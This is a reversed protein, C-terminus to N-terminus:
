DVKFRSVERILASIGDRNKGSIGNVRNVAVNIQDAGSAMENMGSSIEQSAKELNDSEEIVEKSGDLMEHSGSKVRQTIEKLKNVGELLQKSGTAQEEMANRINDEQEAVVNINTDIAEFEVLVNETSSTIQDISDKIKKMVSGITKSQEGSNEALKRIEDAVVAFGKGSEGAHAAEIAANMSLLNTQSAINEMVLNIELLGESERAIEQINHAVEQLGSRGVESSGKLTKVNVANNVLTSTVSQINAAMEEISSSAQSVYSSQSEIHDNLKNIHTVVQEMTANTESVSASQNMVRGRISRINATIQNVAAATENMNSALDAGIGSLAGAERKVNVILSKIKELTKNFYRALNGIEDASYVAIARTLDGEGESIDKLSDAVKVIPKSISRSLLIAALVVLALVAISIVISINIMEYVPILITKEMIGIGYSWPNALTGVTIPVIFIELDTNVQKIYNSFTYPRGEKVAKVLDNLYPGAMDGETERMNKGIRSEDFHATTIGENSFVATVADPFPKKTQVIEQIAQLSLDFGMVGTFKGEARIPVCISTMLTMNGGVNYESPELLAPNGSNKPLFYYVGTVPDEFDELATVEIKGKDWYYYPAFRGGPGAGKTGLYQRDDGELVDPEMVCWAGIIGPNGRVLGELMVNLINRRNGPVMYPYQGMINAATQVKYLSSDFFAAISGASGNAMEATYKESLSTISARSRILLTLTVSAISFLCLVNM